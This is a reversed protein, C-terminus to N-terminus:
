SELLQKFEEETIVPVGHEQAKKLKSGAKDGAVLYSTKKSVSSSAKGGNQKVLDEAEKRKFIVMAGTFVFTQGAFKGEGAALRKVKKIRLQSSLHQMLDRNADIALWDTLSEAIIPGVGDIESLEDTTAAMLKEVSGTADAIQSSVTQGVNRIGFSYLFKELKTDRSKEIEALLKEVKREGWRDLELMQEQKDQLEYLSAVDTILGASLLQVVNKEALGEINMANRSVFHGFGGRVQAPCSATNPCR